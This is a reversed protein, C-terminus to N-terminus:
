ISSKRKHKDDDNKSEQEDHQETMRKIQTDVWEDSLAQFDEELREIDQELGLVQAKYIDVELKMEKFKKQSECYERKAQNFTDLVNSNPIRDLKQKLELYKSEQEYIEKDNRLIENSTEILEKQLKQIKNVHNFKKPDTHELRRWKHVNIPRKLEEQLAKNKGKQNRLSTEYQILTNQLAKLKPLHNNQHYQKTKSLQECKSQLSNYDSLHTQHSKNRSQIESLYVQIDQNLQHIQNTTQVLQTGLSDRENLVDIHQKKVSQSDLEKQATVQVLNQITIQNHQSKSECDTIMQKVKRIDEQLGVNEKEVHFHHFHERIVSEETKGINQKLQTLQRQTYGVFRKIDSIGDKIQPTQENILNVETKVSEYAHTVQKLQIEELEHLSKELKTILKSKAKEILLTKTQKQKRTNIDQDIIDQKDSLKNITLKHAKVVKLLGNYENQLNRLTNDHVQILDNVHNSSKQSLDTKRSLIDNERTLAELSKKTNELLKRANKTDIGEMQDMKLKTQDRQQEIQSHEKDAQTLKHSM